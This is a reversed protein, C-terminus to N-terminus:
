KNYPLHTLETPKTVLTCSPRGLFQPQSRLLPALYKRWLIWILAATWGATWEVPVPPEKGHSLAAPAQLNSSM